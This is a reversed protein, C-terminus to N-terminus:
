FIYAVSDLSMESPETRKKLCINEFQVFHLDFICIGLGGLIFIRRRPGAQRCAPTSWSVFMFSPPYSTLFTIKPQIGAKAPM